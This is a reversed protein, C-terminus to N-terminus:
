LLIYNRNRVQDVEFFLRLLIFTGVIVRFVKFVGVSFVSRFDGRVPFKERSDLCPHPLPTSRLFWRNM